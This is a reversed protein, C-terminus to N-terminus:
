KHTRRTSGKPDGENEGYRSTHGTRAKPYGRVRRKIDWKRNFGSPDDYLANRADRRNRVCDV